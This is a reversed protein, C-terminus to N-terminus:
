TKERREIREARNTMAPCSAYGGGAAVAELRRVKPNPVVQYDVHQQKM